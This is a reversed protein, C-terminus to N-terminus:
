QLDTDRLQIIILYPEFTTLFINWTFTLFWDSNMFGTSKKENYEGEILKLGDM